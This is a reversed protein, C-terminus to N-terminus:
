FLIAVLVLHLGVLVVHFGPGFVTITGACLLLTGVFSGLHLYYYIRAKRPNIIIYFKENGIM